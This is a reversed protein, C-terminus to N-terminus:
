ADPTRQPPNDASDERLRSDYRVPGNGRQASVVGTGPSLRARKKARRRSESPPGYPPNGHEAGSQSKDPLPSDMHDEPPHPGDARPPRARKSRM